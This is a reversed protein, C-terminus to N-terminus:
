TGSQFPWHTNRASFPTIHLNGTKVILSPTKFGRSKLMSGGAGTVASVSSYNLSWSWVTNCNIIEIIMIMNSRWWFESIVCTNFWGVALMLVPLTTMLYASMLKTGPRHWSIQHSKETLSHADAISQWKMQMLFDWRWISIYLPRVIKAWQNLYLFFSYTFCIIRM